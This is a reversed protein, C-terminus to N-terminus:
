TADTALRGLPVDDPVYPSLTIYSSPKVEYGKREVLKRKITIGHLFNITEADGVKAQIEAALRKQMKEFGSAEGRAWELDYVKQAWAEADAWQTADLVNGKAPPYLEKLVPLEAIMGSPDPENGNAVDDFFQKAGDQMATWLKPIPRREFLKVDGAIWVGLIGWGYSTFGDGVFMQEQIQLENHRPPESGGGWDRMWVGYDFCCKVEVIGPGRDPCIIEADRTCGLQGHRVYDDNANPRVELRLEDAIASLILPQMRRGWDMRNDAKREAKFRGTFEQFLLWKSTYPSSGFLAPVETSSLSQRKPDPM